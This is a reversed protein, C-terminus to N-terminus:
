NQYQCDSLPRTSFTLDPRTQVSCLLHVAAAATPIHYKQMTQHKTGNNMVVNSRYSRYTDAGSLWEPRRLVQRANSRNVNMWLCNLTKSNDGFHDIARLVVDVGRPTSAFQRPIWRIDETTQQKPRQYRADDAGEGQSVCDGGNQIGQGHGDTDVLHRGDDVGGTGMM